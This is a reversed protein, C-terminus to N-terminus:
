YPSDLYAVGTVSMQVPSVHRTRCHCATPIPRSFPCISRSVGPTLFVNVGDLLRREQASEYVSALSFGDRAEAAKDKLLYQRTDVWNSVAACAEVWEPM